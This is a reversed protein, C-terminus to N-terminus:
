VRRTASVNGPNAYTVLLDAIADPQSLQALHGGPIQDPTIGIRDMAVRRQFAPPFLRDERSAIVKIPVDPLRKQPFPEAFPTMSQEREVTIAAAVLDAPIDHFFVDDLDDVTRGQAAAAEAAAQEQGTNEWWESGTEGFAPIMANVFVLLSAPLRECALPASLGGMSQAVLVVDDLGAAAGVIVDAYAALGARDDDAPLDVAVATRGRAQLAEVVRHWYWAQGGAGPVLVFGRVVDVVV